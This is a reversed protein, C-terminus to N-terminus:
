TQGQSDTKRRSFNQPKRGCMAKRDMERRDSPGEEVIDEELNQKTIRRGFM